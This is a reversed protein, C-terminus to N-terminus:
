QMIYSFTGYLTNTSALTQYIHMRPTGTNFAAIYGNGSSVTTNGDWLALLGVNLSSSNFPLGDLIMEGTGTAGYWSVIFSVTILNGSRLYNGTQLTYSTTGNSTAGYITPTWTGTYNYPVIYNNPVSCTVFVCLPDFRITGLFGTAASPLTNGGNVSTFQCNKFTFIGQDANSIWMFAPGTVGPYNGSPTPTVVAGNFITDNVNFAIDGLMAGINFPSALAGYASADFKSNNITVVRKRQAGSMDVSGASFPGTAYYGNFTVKYFSEELFFGQLVNYSHLNVNNYETSVTGRGTSLGGGGTGAILINNYSLGESFTSAGLANTGGFTINSLTCGVSSRIVHQYADSTTNTTLNSITCGVALGPTMFVASQNLPSTTAYSSQTPAHLTVITGNIASIQVFEFDKPIFNPGNNDSSMSSPVGCIFLWMGPKLGSVSSLTITSSGKTVPATINYMVTPTAVPSPFVFGDVAPYTSVQAAAGTGSGGVITQGVGLYMVTAGNGEVCFTGQVEVRGKNYVKPMLRLTAGSLYCCNCAQIFAPGDDAVGDGKAGFMEPTVFDLGSIYGAGSMQLYGGNVFKLHRGGTVSLPTTVPYGQTTITIDLGATSPASLASSLSNFSQNHVQTGNMSTVFIASHAPSVLLLTFLLTVLYKM